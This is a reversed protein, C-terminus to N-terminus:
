QENKRSKTKLHKKSEILATWKEVKEPYKNISVRHKVHAKAARENLEFTGFYNILLYPNDPERFFERMDEFVQKIVDEVLFQSIKLDKAVEEVIKSYHRYNLKRRM